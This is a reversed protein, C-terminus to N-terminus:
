LLGRCIMMDIEELDAQHGQQSFAQREIFMSVAESITSLRGGTNKRLGKAQVCDIALLSRAIRSNDSTGDCLDAKSIPDAFTQRINVAARRLVNCELWLEKLYDTFEVAKVPPSLLRSVLETFEGNSQGCLV